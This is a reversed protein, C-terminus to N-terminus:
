KRFKAIFAAEREEITKYHPEGGIECPLAYRRRMQKYIAKTKDPMDHLDATRYEMIQTFTCKPLGEFLARFRWWHLKLAKDTLDIGYAQAFAAAILAGDVEFDYARGAGPDIGASGCAKIREAEAKAEDETRGCRYFWMVAEFAKYQDFGPQCAALSGLVESITQEVFRLAAKKNDPDLRFLRNELRIYPRFDTDIKYGLAYEPLRQAILCAM